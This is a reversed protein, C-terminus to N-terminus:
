GPPPPPAYEQPKQSMLNARRLRHCVAHVSGRERSRQQLLTRIFSAARSHVMSDRSVPPTTGM